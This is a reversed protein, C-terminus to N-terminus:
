AEQVSVVEAIPPFVPMSILPPRVGNM